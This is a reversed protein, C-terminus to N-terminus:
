EKEYYVMADITDPEIGNEKYHWLVDKDIYMKVTLSSGPHVAIESICNTDVLILNGNTDYLAATVYFDYRAEDTTNEFTVYM